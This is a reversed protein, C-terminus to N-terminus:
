NIYASALATRYAYLVLFLYSEWDAPEKDVNNYIHDSSNYRTLVLEALSEVM